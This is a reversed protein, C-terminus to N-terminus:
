ELTWPERVAAEDEGAGVRREVLEDVCGALEADLEADLRRGEAVTRWAGALRSVWPM